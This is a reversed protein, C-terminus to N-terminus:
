QVLDMHMVINGNGDIEDIVTAEWIKPKYDAFGFLDEWGVPHNMWGSLHHGMEHVLVGQSVEGGNSNCGVEIVGGISYTGGVYYNDGVDWAWMGSLFRDGVHKKVVVSKNIMPTAGHARIIQIAQERAMVCMPTIDPPYTFTPNHKGFTICGTISFLIVGILIAKKM